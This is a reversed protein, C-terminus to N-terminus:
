LKEMNWALRNWFPFQGSIGSDWDVTIGERTRETVEGTLSTGSFLRWRVRDGKRLRRMQKESGSFLNM